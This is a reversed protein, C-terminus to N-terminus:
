ARDFSPATAHKIQEDSIPHLQAAADDSKFVITTDKPLHTQRDQKLVM